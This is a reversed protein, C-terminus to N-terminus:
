KVTHRKYTLCPSFNISSSQISLHLRLFSLIISPWISTQNKKKINTGKFLNNSINLLFTLVQWVSMLLREDKKFNVFDLLHKYYNRTAIIGFQIIFLLSPWPGYSQNSFNSHQCPLLLLSFKNFRLNTEINCLIVYM